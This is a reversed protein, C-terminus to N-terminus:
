AETQLIYSSAGPLFPILFQSNNGDGGASYIGQFCADNSGTISLTQGAIYAATGAAARQSSGQNDLTWSGGTRALEYIGVGTGGSGTNTITVSTKGGATVTYAGSLCESQGTVCINAGSLPTFTDGGDSVSSVSVGSAATGTAIFLLNGATTSPITVSTCTPTCTLNGAAAVGPTFHVLSFLPTAATFNGARSKFALASFAMPSSPTQTFTPASLSGSAINLGICQNLQDTIYPSSCPNSSTATGFNVVLQIIADTASTTLAIGTCITCAATASAGATDFSATQGPPPLLEIFEATYYGTTLTGTAAANTNITASVIETNAALGLNYIADVAGSSANFSNCLEAFSGGAPCDTWTGGGGTSSASAIHTQNSTTIILIGVSGATTPLINFSCTTTGTTCGSQIGTSFSDQVETWGVPLNLTGNNTNQMRFIAQAHLPGCFLFAAAFVVAALFKGLRYNWTM